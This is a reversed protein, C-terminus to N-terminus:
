ASAYELVNRLDKGLGITLYRSGGPHQLRPAKRMLCCLIQLVQSMQLLQHPKEVIFDLDQLFCATVLGFGVDNAVLHPDAASGLHGHKQLVSKLRSSPQMNRSFLWSARVESLFLQSIGANACPCLAVSAVFVSDGSYSCLQLSSSFICRLM